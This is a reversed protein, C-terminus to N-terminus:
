YHLYEYAPQMGLKTFYIGLKSQVGSSRLGGRPIECCWPKSDSGQCEGDLSSLEMRAWSEQASPNEVIGKSIPRRCASHCCIFMFSICISNFDTAQQKCSCSQICVFIKIYKSITVKLFFCKVNQGLLWQMQLFSWLEQTGCYLDCIGVQWESYQVFANQINYQLEFLSGCIIVEESM